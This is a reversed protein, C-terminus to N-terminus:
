ICQYSVCRSIHCDGTFKSPYSKGSSISFVTMLMVGRCKNVLLIFAGVGVGVVNVIDNAHLAELSSPRLIYNQVPCPICCMTGPTSGPLPLSSCLRGNIYGQDGPFLAADLFPVPCSANSMLVNVSNFPEFRYQSSKRV